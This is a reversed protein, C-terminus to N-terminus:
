GDEDMGDGQTLMRVGGLCFFSKKQFPTLIVLVNGTLGICTEFELLSAPADNLSQMVLLM